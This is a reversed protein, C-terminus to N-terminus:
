QIGLMFHNPTNGVERQIPHKGLMFHSPTNSSEGPHSALEDSSVWCSTVLLIVVGLVLHLVEGKSPFSTWLLTEEAKQHSDQDRLRSM